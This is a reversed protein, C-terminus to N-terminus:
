ESAMAVGSPLHENMNSDEYVEVGVENPFIDFDPAPHTLNVCVEVAGASEDIDYITNEFSVVFPDTCNFSCTLFIDNIMCFDTLITDMRLFNDLVLWM